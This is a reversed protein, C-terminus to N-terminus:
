TVEFHDEGCLIKELIQSLKRFVNLLVGRPRPSLWLSNNFSYILTHSFILSKIPLFNSLSGTQPSLYM